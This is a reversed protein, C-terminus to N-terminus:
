SSPRGHNEHFGNEKRVLKAKKVAKIKNKFVGFRKEKGGITAIVAYNKNIKNYRVHIDGTSNKVSIKRNKQNEQKTVCRLNKIRNDDRVGNIHDIEMERPDSNDNLVWIIRHLQYLQGDVKVCLYGYKTKSGVEDGAKMRAKNIRRVCKGNVPDYKFLEHLHGSPPLKLKKSM